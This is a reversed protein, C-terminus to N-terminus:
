WTKPKLNPNTAIALVPGAQDFSPASFGRFQGFLTPAHKKLHSVLHFAM